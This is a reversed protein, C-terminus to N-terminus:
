PLNQTWGQTQQSLSPSMVAPLPPPGLLPARHPSPRRDPRLARAQGCLSGEPSSGPLHPSSLPLGSPAPNAQARAPGQSPGPQPQRPSPPTTTRPLVPGPGKGGARLAGLRRPQAGQPCVGLVTASRSPSALRIGPASRAVGAACVGHGPTRTLRCSPGPGVAPLLPPLRAVASDTERLSLSIPRVGICAASGARGRHSSQRRQCAEEKDSDAFNPLIQCKTKKLVLLIFSGPLWQSRQHGRARGCHGHNATAGPPALGPSRAAAPDPAKCSCFM